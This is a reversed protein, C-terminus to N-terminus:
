TKIFKSENWYEFQIEHSCFPLKESTNGYLSGIETSFNMLSTPNTKLYLVGNKRPLKSSIYHYLNYIQDRSHWQKFPYELISLSCQFLSRFKILSDSSQKRKSTKRNKKSLISREHLNSIVHFRLDLSLKSNNLDSFWPSQASNFNDSRHVNGSSKLYYHTIGIIVGCLSCTLQFYFQFYFMSVNYYSHNIELLKFIKSLLEIM